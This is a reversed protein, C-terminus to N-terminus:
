SGSTNTLKVFANADNMVFGFEAEILIAVLNHEWLSTLTSDITVSAETSVRYSIGGIQGWAAQSFDGGYGVVSSGDSTAVGEGIFSPRALLRGSTSLGDSVDDTPLETYIPRGTSDVAGWLQPEVLSDLAWGNLRFRRGTSDSDTVIEAMADVLDGHIGGSAQATTGLEVSKSTQDLYTSFPGAGGTGDPGEDHLVARDFAVALADGFSNRMTDVYGGPNARVVEASVVLIGAIKKPTMTKLSLSGSTAPKLAGENVWGLNPRGTVVPISEGNIGLPIRPVLRQVVSTRAAREFIPAAQHAPLFGSFDSTKTPASIAM